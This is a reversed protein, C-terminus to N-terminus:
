ASEQAANRAKLQREEALANEIDGYGIQRAIDIEKSSYKPRQTNPEVANELFRVWGNIRDIKAKDVAPAVTDDAKGSSQDILDKAQGSVVVPKEVKSNEQKTKSGVEDISSFDLSSESQPKNIHFEAQNKAAKLSAYEDVSRGDIALDWRNSAVKTIVVRRDSSEYIGDGLSKYTRAKEGGLEKAKKFPTVSDMSIDPAINQPLYRFEDWVKEDGKVLSPWPHNLGADTWQFYIDDHEPNNTYRSLEEVEGDKWRQYLEPDERLLADM